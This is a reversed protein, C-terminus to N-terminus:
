RWETGRTKKPVKLYPERVVDQGLRKNTTINIQMDFTIENRQNGEM